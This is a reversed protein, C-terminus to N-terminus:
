RCRKWMASQYNGSSDYTIKYIVCCEGCGSYTMSTVRGSNNTEIDSFSVPSCHIGGTAPEFWRCEGGGYGGENAGCGAAGVGGLLIMFGLVLVKIFSRGM